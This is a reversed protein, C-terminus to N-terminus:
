SAGLPETQQLMGWNLHPVAPNEVEHYLNKNETEHAIHFYHFHFRATYSYPWHAETDQSFMNLILIKLRNHINREM